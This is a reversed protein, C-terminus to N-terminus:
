TGVRVRHGGLGVGLVRSLVVWGRDWLISRLDGRLGRCGHDEPTGPGAQQAGCTPTKASTEWSQTQPRQLWGGGGGQDARGEVQRPQPARHAERHKQSRAYHFAHGHRWAGRWQPPGQWRSCPRGAAWCEETGRERGPAKAMQSEQRGPQQGEHSELRLGTGRRKAKLKPLKWAALGRSCTAHPATM